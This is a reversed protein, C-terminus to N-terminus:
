GIFYTCMFTGLLAASLGLVFVLPPRVLVGIREKASHLLAMEQFDLM